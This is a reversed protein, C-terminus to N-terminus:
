ETIGKAARYGALAARAMREPTFHAARRPGASHLRERTEVDGLVSELGAALASVDLPDAHLAAGGAVEVLAPDTSTLTPIGCALAELVPIGFGEYLSPYAFAEAANYLLPLDEQAVYDTFVLAEEMNLAAIERLVGEHLWARKGVIVLKGGYGSQRLMKIAAALRAINKRPQILGLYLVYRNPLGYKRRVGVLLDPGDIPHFAPDLPPQVLDFREPPVGYRAVIDDRIANTLVFIRAAKRVTMGTMLRLRHRDAFPMTEPCHLAVVDHLSVVFPCASRLPGTYQVHLLDFDRSLRPVEFLMRAYSSHARLARTPLPLRGAEHVSSSVLATLTERPAEVALAEVLARMYTENGGARTGLVHADIGIRM